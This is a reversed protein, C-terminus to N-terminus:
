HLEISSDIYFSKTSDVQDLSDAEAKNQNFKNVTRCYLQQAHDAMPNLTLIDNYSIYFMSLSSFLNWKNSILQNYIEGNGNHTPIFKVQIPEEITIGSEDQDIVTTLIEEGNKFKIAFLLQNAQPIDQPKETM